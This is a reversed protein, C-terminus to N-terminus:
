SSCQRQKCELLIYALWLVNRPIYHFRIKGTLIFRVQYSFFSIHATSYHKGVDSAVVTNNRRLTDNMKWKPETSCMACHTAM